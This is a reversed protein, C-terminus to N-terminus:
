RGRLFRYVNTLGYGTAVVSISSLPMLIAAILPTLWNNFAFFLGGTNYLISIAYNLHLIKKGYRTYDIIEKLNALSQHRMIVDSGPTFNFEEAAVAIGVNSSKLAAADNIGDGIMIVRKGAATLKEVFAQKDSSSQSFLMNGPSFYPEFYVAEQNTDGSLLYLEFDSGLNKLIDPIGQRLAAETIFKGKKSNILVYVEQENTNTSSSVFASNGLKITYAGVEAEFGKGSYGKFHIVEQNSASFLAAIQRSKPHMSQRCALGIAQKEPETLIDGKYTVQKGETLTGTKDFVICNAEAIEMALDSNKLFIGKRGLKRQINGLTFPASLALACPCAVILISTVVNFVQAADTLYWFIVGASALVFVTILFFQTLKRNKEAFFNAKKDNEPRNWLQQLYSNEAKKVTKFEAAPGSVRGGAYIKDGKSKTIIESEGTIFSYDIYTKESYVESDVPIIEGNRIRLVDGVMVKELPIIQEREAEIRKVGIPLFQKFDKEFSLASYTKDQFWRGILLFFVFGALSDFYGPGLDFFVDWSSRFFLVAIGAAIPIDLNVSRSRIAKWSSVLYGNGSYFVVPIALAFNLWAFFRGFEHTLTNASLYEPFSFLMINGFCFGAVAMKRLLSTQTIKKAEEKFNPTYGINSLLVALNKLSLKEIDWLFTAEKRTFNVQVERIVPEIKYLNELLYICSSCHVAPLFLTAKAVKGERFRIYRNQLEEIELFEFESGDSPKVGPNKAFDYFDSLGGHHIMEYVSKCGNCCFSKEEFVVEDEMKDGCHYCAKEEKGSSTQSQKKTSFITWLM